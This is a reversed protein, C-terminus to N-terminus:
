SLLDNPDTLGSVGLLTISGDAGFDVVTDLMGDGNVDSESTGGIAVGDELVLLDVTEDFDTYTDDGDNAGFIFTDAGSGGTLFDLGGGGDLVDDGAGGDFVDDRDSGFLLTTDAEAAGSSAATLTAGAAGGSLSATFGDAVGTFALSTQSTNVFGSNGTNVLLFSDGATAVFDGTFDVHMLGSNLFADNGVDIQSFQGAGIGGIELELRTNNLFMNESVTMTADATVTISSQNITDWDNVEGNVAVTGGNEATIESSGMVFLQPDISDLPDTDVLTVSIISGAGDANLFGTGDSTGDHSIVSGLNFWSEGTLSVVGGNSANVYGLGDPTGNGSGGTGISIVGGSNLKFSSGTGDVNITGKSDGIGNRGDEPGGTTTVSVTAGNLVNLTGAIGESGTGIQIFDVTATLTSGVGDVIFESAGVGDPVGWGAGIVLYDETTAGGSITFDAGNTVSILSNFGTEVSVRDGTIDLRSGEGDINLEGFNTDDNGRAVSLRAYGTQGDISLRGGTNVNVVGTAGDGGFGDGIGLFSNEGVLELAGGNSITALGDGGPRQGIRMLPGDEYPADVRRPGEQTVALVSGAGDIILTGQSGNRGFDIQPISTEDGPTEGLRDRVEVRGGDLIRLTGTGGDRGVQAFGAEYDYPVSFQGTEPSVILTSGTGSVTVEGTTGAGRGVNLWITEVDGGNTINLTGTGGDRGGVDIVNDIGRASFLSGEGDVNIIGTGGTQSGIKIDRFDGLVNVDDNGNDVIMQAGNTINITGSGTRGVEVNVGTGIVLLESGAGDLNITGSSGSNRAVSLQGENAKGDVTMTGGGSITLNGLGRDGVFVHGGDASLNSGTGDVVIEGHGLTELGLNISGDVNVTGGNRVEVTGQALVGPTGYDIEPVVTGAGVMLEEGGSTSPAINLVSGSGSVSVFGSSGGTNAVHLGQRVDVLGGNRIDLTGAGENGVVAFSAEGDFTPTGTILLSSGGGDVVVNGQGGKQAGVSFIPDDVVVTGGNLINMSGTGNFGVQLQSTTSFSAGSGDINLIGVGTDLNGLYVGSFNFSDTLDISGGALVNVTGDGSTGISINNQFGAYSLSSGVGTVTLEGTSGEHIGIGMGINGATSSVTVQGGSTVDVTGDGGSRGISIWSEDGDMTVMGAESVTMEGTGGGTGGRGIQLFPGGFGADPNAQSIALVSGTGDILVRGTAGDRGVNIGPVTTTTNQTAGERIEMRGGNSINLTGDSGAHRGINVFGAEYDYPVSWMGTETSSIITSGVGDINVTGTAGNRAVELWLTEVTGGNEVTLSGTGGGQGVKIVNDTGAMSLTSGAGTVTVTGTGTATDGITMDNFSGPANIDTLGNDVTVTGGGSVTMSGNGNEGIELQEGNVTLNSGLGDVLISGSGTVDGGAVLNAEFIASGGNTVNLAGTGQWGIYAQVDDGRSSTDFLYSSGTGDVNITGVGTQQDGVNLNAFATATAANVFTGGNQVTLNGSGEFGVHLAGTMSMTADDVLVDGQSGANLGFNLFVDADVGNFSFDAGDAVTLTGQGSRGVTINSFASGNVIATSGVGAVTMDGADGADRAISLIASNPSELLFSSGSEVNLSGSAGGRGIAIFSSEGIMEFAAGNTVTLEGTGGGSGGRGVSMFPGSFGVDPGAQTISIVSGAGDILVRGTAGDRGINMGPATTDTSQTSGERIEMRGGDTISVTGDGGRRGVNVFGAEYDYPVSWKGTESSVIVTSGAGDVNVTGSSNDRSVELWLTEVSGGNEVNLTGTAGNRGVMITNDSGNTSLSTGAGTVTVTGTGTAANGIVVDQFNGASNIDNVGNDTTVTGGNLVTLSGSGENGIVLQDAGVNLAGGDVTTSGNSGAQNGVIAGDTTLSGGTVAGAVTTDGTTSISSDLTLTGVGTDGVVTAGSSPRASVTFTTQATETDGNSAEISTATVTLEIDDTVDIPLTLILGGLDIDSLTWSGDGNDTGASLEGGAPVGSIVVSQISESGDTDTVLASVDLTAIQSASTVSGAYTKAYIGGDLVGSGTFASDGTRSMWVANFGGDARAVLDVEAQWDQINDNIRFEADVTNGDADFRQAFVGGQSGDQGTSRWAIVFGGDKLAVVDANLQDSATFTNVQFEAGAATGDPNFRQAYVGHGSGDQGTSQWAIVFGGSDLAAIEPQGQDNALQTNVRFEGALANGNADFMRASIENGSVQGTPNTQWTFIVNGNALQTVAPEGQFASTVNNVLYEDAGVTAGNRSVANGGSDFRQAVVAFDSGDPGFSQWTVLFGGDSLPTTEHPLQQGAAFSNVQFEGTAPAGSADYMRGFVGWNSGDQGNSEWTVAFGGGDLATVKPMIQEFGSNTDVHFEGGIPNGDADLRQGFISFGSGVQNYSQWVIVSTGDSLTTMDPGVQANQTTTNVLFEASATFPQSPDSTSSQIQTSVDLASVNPTDAVAAVDVTVTATDTGGNGDSVTYDFTALGGFDATPTFVVDGNVNLAVTGNVANAVSTITLTDGDVDDDNALLSQATITVPTDETTTSADSIEVVYGGIQTTGSQDNWTGDSSIHVFDEVGGGNDPQGAQWNTYTLATGAEPGAVWEFAGEVASDNAGLWAQGVSLSNIFANEEASTITVLHGGMTAAGDQAEAWTVGTPVSVFKYYHGNDANFTFGTTDVSLDDDVAVPADNIPTVDFTVTATAFNGNGDTVTYDFSDFGTFDADPTYSLNGDALLVLSGGNATVFPNAFSSTNTVRLLDGDIDLGNAITDNVLVNGGTTTDETLTITEGTVVLPDDVPAVDITITATNTDGNGDSVTYDFTATGFFNADPTFVVDGNVDLAVAGNLANGVSQITLPDGDFDSDNAVLSAATITVPTDEVASASDDAAVPGNNAGDAFFTGDSFRLLEISQLSDSGDRGVVTDSVGIVAGGADRTIVYESSAGAFVATDTGTGGALTDDGGGGSLVDDGAGGDFTDDRQSGFLLTTDAEFASAQGVQLAIGSSSGLLSTTFGEAVGTFALSIQSTDLPDHSSTVIFNYTDGASAAFGGTFDFNLLSSNLDAGGGVDIQSFQGVGTGGIELNLRSNNLIFEDSVTLTADATLTISSENDNDWDNIKGAVNISGGNESTIGSSGMFTIEANMADLPNLDILTVDVVSGLGSATIFGTGVETGDPLLSGLNFSSEGILSISGGNSANVSGAGDVGGGSGINITGGSDLLFSSGAGDVNLSGGASTGGFTNRGDDIGGTTTVTATAGNLVNLAGTIGENGLGVQISGVTATLSSGVGDITLEGSGTGTLPGYEVGVNFHGGGAGTENISFDAGNRVTILSNFSSDIRVIEGAVELLTNEGDLLLEGSNTSDNGRAIQLAASGAQGDISLLAGSTVSVVGTAGDGAFGDGIGLFANEGDLVLAGGNSITADGQGGPRNGIRMFPGDEYPADFRRPGEQTLALVSGAGDIILTGQGGNRGVDLQPLSTEDGPTEGLRDRVEVRGGDLIRLTGTGGDRGIQAFGAEYDYPVSFQGTEPSVILTSGAGNVTVEGTAGDRGVNLWITEVDGGNTVSLVGTGAGARGGVEIENDIGRASLLSGEGDVNVIGVGSAGRGIVFSDGPGFQNVDTIGNDAIVQGGNSVNLAGDGAGGIIAGQDGVSLTGGDITATGTSGVQNGIIAGDTTLSGGSVIGALSTDGAPTVATDIDLTGVGTDGVITTGKVPIDASGDITIQVAQQATGGNGDEVTIVYDQVLVDGDALDDLDADNVDFTWTVQGDGDGTAADTVVASLTGRFGVGGGVPSVSVSHSDSLEVDSFDITGSDSLTATNEGPDGVALETVNGADDATGIVPADNVAAVDVTVTATDTGGNGDSVTYTFTAQGNFDADPTFSVDGNTDLTVSGGVANEVSVLTVADGDIDGDNAVLSAATIIIATDEVAAVFDDVAGPDDNVAAVNVTVTVANSVLEGDSATYDFSAAGNFNPDPVFIVDGNIDLAVSGGVANGVATITLPDNEADVDNAILTAAAITLPTDESATVTDANAVPPTNDTHGDIAIAILQTDSAGREDTVVVTFTESATQGSDLDDLAPTTNDLTYTWGGSQDISLNGFAGVGGGVASWTATSNNDVDESTLQGSVTNAPADEVVTGSDNGPELSIVPADNTGTVTITVSSASEAGSDDSMVYDVVVQATEGQALADFDSGPDFALENNLISVSGQGLAGRITVSDLSFNSPGDDGDVDTDNALVDITVTDNELTVVSDLVAVPADNSGTVSIAVTSTSTAGALDSITYTLEVKATDGDDLFQYANPDYVVQDNVISAVGLGSSVVVSEVSLQDLRDPDTDNALVDITISTDEDTEGSDANATPGTNTLNVELAEWNRATLNSFSFTYASSDEDDEDPDANISLFDRFRQLDDQIRQDLAEGYTLNIQLTDFDEGGDYVDVSNLNDQLTYVGRDDDDGGFVVDSGSGGDIVDDGDGGKLRDDGAGGDLTDGGSGGKLEDNGAGGSLIDDGSGGKLKDDGDGGDLIDNGAGGKLTDNGAGGSLLDDGKQGKLDDDGDGGQLVDDGSGGKLKDNGIGGDLSDDGKGGKLDDDGDGGLLIDDDKGGDLKDDGASGEIVDNGDRGDLDDDNETGVIIDDGQTGKIKIGKNKDASKRSM